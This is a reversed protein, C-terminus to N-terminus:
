ALGSRMMVPLVKDAINKYIDFIGQMGAWRKALMDLLMLCADSIEYIGHFNIPGEEDGSLENSFSVVPLRGDIALLCHAIITLTAQHVYQASVLTLPYRGHVTDEAGRLLKAYFDVVKCASHYSERPVLEQSDAALMAEKTAVLARLVLPQFLFCVSTDFGMDCTLNGIGLTNDLYHLERRWALIHELRQEYWLRPFTPASAPLYIDRFIESRIYCLRYYHSTLVFQSQIPDSVTMENLTAPYEATIIEETLDSPRGFHQGITREICYLGWFTARRMRRNKEGEFEDNPEQHYNLEVSLRCAFDLLKWIDGKRPYFLAFMILLLLAQLSEASVDSTVEEVCQLAEAYYAVSEPGYSPEHRAKNASAIACIMSIRFYQHAEIGTLFKNNSGFYRLYVAIESPLEEPDIFAMLINTTGMYLTVLAEIEGQSPTPRPQISDSEDLRHADLWYEGSAYNEPYTVQGLKSQAHVITEIALAYASSSGFFQWCSPNSHSVIFHKDFSLESTYTGWDNNPPAEISSSVTSANRVHVPYRFASLPETNGNVASQVSRM